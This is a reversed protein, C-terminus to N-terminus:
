KKAKKKPPAEGGEVIRKARLVEYQASKEQEIAKLEQLKQLAENKHQAEKAIKGHMSKELNLLKTALDAIEERAELRQTIAKALREEREAVMEAKRVELDAELKKIELLLSQEKEKKVALETRKANLEDSGERNVRLDAILMRTDKHLRHTETYVQEEDVSLKQRAAAIAQDVEHKRKILDLREQGEKKKEESMEIVKKNLAEIEEECKAIAEIHQKSNAAKEKRSADEAKAVQTRVKTAENCLGTIAKAHAELIGHTKASLTNRTHHSESQAKLRQLNIKETEAGAEARAVHVKSADYSIREEYILLERKAEEVADELQKNADQQAEVKAKSTDIIQTKMQEIKVQDAKHKEEKAALDQAIGAVEGKLGEVKKVLEAHKEKVDGSGAPQDSM